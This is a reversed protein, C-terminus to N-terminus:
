SHTVRSGTRIDAPGLCIGASYPRGVRTDALRMGVHLDDLEAYVSTPLRIVRTAACLARDQLRAIVVGGRCRAPQVIVKASAKVALLAV